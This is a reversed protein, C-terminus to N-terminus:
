EGKLGTYFNLVSENVFVTDKDFGKIYLGDLSRARSLAVYAQGEAFVRDFDVYVQDLTTGQSKHITLGYALRLPLQSRSIKVQRGEKVEFDETRVWQEEGNDFKVKAGDSDLATVTGCSGNVLGSTFNTNSLLMVRAGKKLYLTQPVRCDANFREWKAKDWSPLNPNTPSVMTSSGNIYSRIKDDAIYKRPKGPLADFRRQNEADAKENISYLKVADEPVESDNQVCRSKFLKVDENTVKGLRLNNLAGVFKKDAQRYVKDLVITYLNLDKWAQANFCFDVLREAGNLEVTQGIKVPPLQFFDGVLIVRLGGFPKPVERIERLALDLYDFVYASLMSIEDIVLYKASCIEKRKNKGKPSKFFRMLQSIPNDAIGIGAWSHITQGGINVASIGTSSTLVLPLEKKLQNILYSKGVGGGGTILINRTELIKLVDKLEKGM